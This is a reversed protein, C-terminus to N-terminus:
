EKGITRMLEEEAINLEDSSTGTTFTGAGDRLRAADVSEEESALAETGAGGGFFFSFFSFFSFDELFSLSSLELFSFFVELFLM